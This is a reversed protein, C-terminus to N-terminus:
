TLGMYIPALVVITNRDVVITPKASNLYSDFAPCDFEVPDQNMKLIAGVM